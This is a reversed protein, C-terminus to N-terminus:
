PNVRNYIWISIILLGRKPIEPNFWGPLLFKIGFSTLHFRNVVFSITKPIRITHVGYGIVLMSNPKILSMLVDTVSM